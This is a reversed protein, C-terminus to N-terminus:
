YFIPRDEIRVVSVTSRAMGRPLMRITLAWGEPPVRRGGRSRSCSKATVSIVNPFEAAFRSVIEDDILEVFGNGSSASRFVQTNVAINWREGDDRSARIVFVKEGAKLAAHPMEESKGEAPAREEPANFVYDVGPFDRRRIVVFFEAKEYRVSFVDTHDLHPFPM